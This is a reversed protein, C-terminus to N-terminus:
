VSYITPLPLHTYSVAPIGLENAALMVKKVAGASFYEIDKATNGSPASHGGSALKEATKLVADEIDAAAVIIGVPRWNDVLAENNSKTKGPDWTSRDLIYPIGSRAMKEMYENGRELQGYRSYDKSVSPRKNRGSSKDRHAVKEEDGEPGVGYDAYFGTYLNDQENAALTIRGKIWLGYPLGAAPNFSDGSLTMTASIEDKGKGKLADVGYFDYMWHVTDLTSLFQHDANKNFARKIERGAEKGVSGGRFQDGFKDSAALDHVFGMPDENILRIAEKLEEKALNDKDKFASPVLDVGMKDAAKMLFPVLLSGGPAIAAAGVITGKGIDAIQDKMFDFEIPDLDQGHFVRALQTGVAATEEAEQKLNQFFERAKDPFEKIWSKVRDLTAEQILQQRVLYRTAELAEAMVRTSRFKVGAKTVVKEIARINRANDEYVHVTDFDDSKLRDIVYRAKDMPNSSGIAQIEIGAIGQDSLYKRVPKDASRATLFVVLGPGSQAIAALLARSTSNIPEAGPTYKDFDGYDFEDGSKARYTAYEGSDLESTTGDKHTVRVKATSTVLTDDFDFISLVGPM